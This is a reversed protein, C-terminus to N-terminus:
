QGMHRLADVMPATSLRVYGSLPQSMELILFIAGAASLSSMLLAAVVTANRPAFLGFAFFIISLWLILVVLFALPLPEQNQLLFLWGTAAIEGSIQLAKTKLERQEEDHPSLKRLLPAINEAKAVASQDMTATLKSGGSSALEINAAYGQKLADRAEKAEPGYAALARDLMIMNAANKVLEANMNDFSSKASSILLSLVLASITAVLGTGLKVIDKSNSDTHHDPLIIGVLIGIIASGFVCGFAAAAIGLANM